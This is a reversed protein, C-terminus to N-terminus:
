PNDAKNDISINKEKTNQVIIQNINEIANNSINTAPNSISLFSTPDYNIFSQEITIPEKAKAQHVNLSLFEHNAVNQFFKSYEEFSFKGLSDFLRRVEEKKFIQEMRTFNNFIKQIKEKRSQHPDKDERQRKNNLMGSHTSSTESNNNSTIERRSM